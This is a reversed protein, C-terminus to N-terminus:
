ASFNEVMTGGVGPWPRPKVGLGLKDVVEVFLLCLGSESSSVAVEVNKLDDSFKAFYRTM